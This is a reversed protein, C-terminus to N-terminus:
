YSASLALLALTRVDDRRTVLADFILKYDDDRGISKTQSVSAFHEAFYQSFDQDHRSRVELFAKEAVHEQEERYRAPVDMEERGTRENKRKKDNFSDYLIGSRDEAKRRVYTRVMRLVLSALRDDSPNDDTMPSEEPQLEPHSHQLNRFQRNVDASFNRMLRPTKESRLFFEGPLTEFLKAFPEYWHSVSRDLLYTLMAKRFVANRFGDPGTIGEYKTLLHREPVIRGSGLSKVNNGFKALHRYEVAHFLGRLRSVDRVKEGALWAQSELFELASQAPLDICAARPRYGREEAKGALENLVKVYQNCYTKLDCVEPIALAFGVPEDRSRSPDAQDVKLQWPVYILTTLPWFHLLVAFDSRDKFPIQEANKEQAGLLLAGSLSTLYVQGKAIAKAFAQLDVWAKQGENCSDGRARQQYPIRNKDRPRPIAWLMDRWLKLWIGDGLQKILFPNCPTEDEYVYVKRQRPKGKATPDNETFEEIPKKKGPRKKNYVHNRRLEASYLEDFLKQCSRETLTVTASNATVDGLEPLDESAFEDDDEHRQHMDRIQLVLGALGAKHQATRLQTLDFTLTVRDVTSQAKPM